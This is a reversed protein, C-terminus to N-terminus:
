INKILVDIIIFSTSDFYEVVNFCWSYIIRYDLISYFEYKYTYYSFLEEFWELTRGRTSNIRDSSSQIKGLISMVVLPLSSRPSNEM